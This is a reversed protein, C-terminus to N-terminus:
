KARWHDPGVEVKAREGQAILVNRFKKASAPQDFESSRKEFFAISENAYFVKDDCHKLAEAVAPENVLKTNFRVMFLKKM